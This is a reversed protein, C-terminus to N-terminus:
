NKRYTIHKIKTFKVNIIYWIIMIDCFFSHSHCIIEDAICKLKHFKRYLFMRIGSSILLPSRVCFTMRFSILGNQM